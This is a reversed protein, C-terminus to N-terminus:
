HTRTAVASFVMPLKGQMGAIRYLGDAGQVTNNFCDHPSGDYENLQEIRLGAGLLASITEGLSHNWTHSALSIPAAPDAYTGQETEEILQRNFYSWAVEKFDNDFMWVAPHFEVLVLRGGPKLYRHINRAWSELVPLWGLVGYSTFVIDFKGELQPQFDLVNAHIFDAKLGMAGALKRAEAIAVDSLDLGTAEAGMRTLALTDQGFHCQLHLLAKGKVDGLLALEWKGLSNRGAMFGEMDYMKSGIHHLVRENWLTRNIDFSASHEVM